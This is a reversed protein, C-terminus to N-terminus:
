EATEGGRGNEKQFSSQFSAKHHYRFPCREPALRSEESKRVYHNYRLAEGFGVM